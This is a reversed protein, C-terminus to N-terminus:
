REKTINNFFDWNEKERKVIFHIKKVGEEDESRDSDSITV